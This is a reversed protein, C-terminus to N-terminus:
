KLGKSFISLHAKVMNQITYKKIRKLSEKAMSNRLKENELINLIKERLENWNDVNVIFGNEGNKVLELGAICRKTTIIPLGCAMAENIVLGWIDERTPLVFIDAAKYYKILEQKSKFNLFHINKIRYKKIIDLYEKTPEGGIIYFGVNHDISRTANILVDIGKRYIFQGVSIVIKKEVLNLEKKIAFKDDESIPVHLMENVDLSTFPYNHIKARNAGYHLLYENTNEGTSLWASASSIFYKKILYIIKKDKKIFGGDTNLIFPIKKLNLYIIALMGTPTSYGGIVIFDYGKNLYKLVSLNLASDNGVRVGNLFISEFNINSVYQWKEDRDSANRREFLVTLECYKGLENFFDVRYPSPINTLFLVKM